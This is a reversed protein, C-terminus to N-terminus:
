RFEIIVIACNEVHLFVSTDVEEQDIHLYFIICRFWIYQSDNEQRSHWSTTFFLNMKMYEFSDMGTELCLDLYIEKCYSPM